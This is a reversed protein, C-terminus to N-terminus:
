SKKVSFSAKATPQREPDDRDEDVEHLDAGGVLQEIVAPGAPLISICARSQYILHSNQPASIRQEYLWSVCASLRVKM